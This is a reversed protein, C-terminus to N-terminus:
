TSSKKRLSFGLGYGLMASVLLALVNATGGFLPYHLAAVVVAVIILHPWSSNEAKFYFYTFVATQIAIPIVYLSAVALASEPLSLLVLSIATGVLTGVLSLIYVIVSDILVQKLNLKM